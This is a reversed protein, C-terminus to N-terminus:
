SRARTLNRPLEIRQGPSLDAGGAATALTAVVRRTDADPALEHAISWLTDGPQVVYVPAPPPPGQLEAEAHGARAAVLAISAVLVAIGALVALRRRRIVRPSLAAPPAARAPRAPRTAPRGLPGPRPNPALCTSM